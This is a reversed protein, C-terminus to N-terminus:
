AAKAQEVKGARPLLGAIFIKVLAIALLLIFIAHMGAAMQSPVDETV